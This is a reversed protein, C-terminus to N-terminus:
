FAAQYKQSDNATTGTEMVADRRVDSPGDSGVMQVILMGEVTLGMVSSKRLLLGAGLPSPVFAGQITASDSEERLTHDSPVESTCPDFLRGIM